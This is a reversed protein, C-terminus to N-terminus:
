KVKKLRYKRQQESQIMGIRDELEHTGEEGEGNQQVRNCKGNKKITNKTELIKVQNMEKEQQSKKM